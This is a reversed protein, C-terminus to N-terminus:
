LRASHLNLAFVAAQVILSFVVIIAFPEPPATEGGWIPAMVLWGIVFAGVSQWRPSGVRALLLTCLWFTGVFEAILKRHM